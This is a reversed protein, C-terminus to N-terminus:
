PSMTKEAFMDTVLKFRAEFDLFDRGRDARYGCVGIIMGDNESLARKILSEHGKHMPIFCGFVIGIKQM